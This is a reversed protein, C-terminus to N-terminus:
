LGVVETHMSVKRHTEDRPVVVPVISIKLYSKSLQKPKQSSLCEKQLQQFIQKSLWYNIQDMTM